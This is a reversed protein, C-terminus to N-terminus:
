TRAGRTLTTSWTDALDARGLGHAEIPSDLQPLNPRVMMFEDVGLGLDRAFDEVPTLVQELLRGLLVDRAARDRLHGHDVLVGRDDPAGGHQDLSLHLLQGAAIAGVCRWRFEELEHAGGWRVPKRRAALMPESAALEDDRGSDVVARSTVTLLPTMASSLSSRSFSPKAMIKRTRVQREDGPPVGCRYAVALDLLGGGLFQERVGVWPVRLRSPATREITWSRGAGGANGEGRSKGHAVAEAGRDECGPVLSSM